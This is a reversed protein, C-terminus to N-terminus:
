KNSAKERKSIGSVMKASKHVNNNTHLNLPLWGARIVLVVTSTIIGRERM